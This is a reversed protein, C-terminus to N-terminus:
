MNANISTSVAELVTELVQYATHKQYREEDEDL